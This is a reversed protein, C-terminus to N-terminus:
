KWVMRKSVGYCLSFVGPVIAVLLAGRYAGATISVILGSSKSVAEIREAAGEYLLYV